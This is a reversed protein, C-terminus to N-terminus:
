RPRMAMPRMKLPLTCRLSGTTTQLEIALRLLRPDGLQEGELAQLADLDFFGGGAVDDAEGADFVDGDALGDGIGVIAIGIGCMSTSSGVTDIIKPMLVEGSAPLSPWYTVDRWRFSRRSLSSSPLTDSRTSGVSVGSCNLTEAATFQLERNQDLHHAAFPELQLHRPGLDDDLLDVAHAHLRNLIEHDVDGLIVLADHDRAAAHAAADHGVHHIVAAAAHADLEADRRAAQDAEARLEQGLGLAGADHVM